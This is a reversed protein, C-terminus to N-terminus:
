AAEEAKLNNLLRNQLSLVKSDAIQLGLVTAKVNAPTMELHIIKGLELAIETRIKAIEDKIIQAHPKLEVGKHIKELTHQKRITESRRYAASSLGTNLISDNRM